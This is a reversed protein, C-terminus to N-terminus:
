AWDNFAAGGPVGVVGEIVGDTSGEMDAPGVVTLRLGDPLALGDVLGLRLTSGVIAGLSMSDEAVGEVDTPGVM